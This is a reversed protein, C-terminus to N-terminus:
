VGRAALLRKRLERETARYKFTKRGNVFLVPIERGFRRELDPNGSIDVQELVCGLERALPM